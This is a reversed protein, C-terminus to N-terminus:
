PGRVEVAAQQEPTPGALAVARKTRGAAAALEWQAAMVGAAESQALALAEAM